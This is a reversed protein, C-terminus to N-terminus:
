SQVYRNRLKLMISAIPNHPNHPYNSKSKNNSAPNTDIVNTSRTFNDTDSINNGMSTLNNSTRKKNLIAYAFLLLIITLFGLIMNLLLIPVKVFPLCFAIILIYIVTFSVWDKLIQIVNFKM